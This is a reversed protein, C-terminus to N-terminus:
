RLHEQLARGWETPLLPMDIGCGGQSQDEILNPACRMHFTWALYPIGLADARNMLAKADDLSMTGDVPGFEGIIVPLTAAPSEFRAPFDAQPDYVHTEYVVNEGGGATIPKQVYADLRRAWGGTGQVAVLHHQGGHADEVARITAVTDNMATWVADDQAGDYNEIPENVLGFMVYGDNVFRAALAQWEQRTKDTPWGQPSFGDDNWLSVMVYVGPKTGVHHVIEAVDDLYGPDSLVDSGAQSQLTLRVFDAGWDDVLADIRREVEAVSEHDADCASCGRTDQVNAGRGQWRTGDARVIRAGDTHL